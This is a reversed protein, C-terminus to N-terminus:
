HGISSSVPPILLIVVWMVAGAAIAADSIAKARSSENKRYGAIGGVICAAGLVGLVILILFEM